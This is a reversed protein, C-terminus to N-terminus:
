LLPFEHLQPLKRDAASDLRQLSSLSITRQGNKQVAGCSEWAPGGPGNYITRFTEGTMQLVLLHVPESYLSIGKTGGTLKIQVPTGDAAQADHIENSAPFLTLGFAYAAIVEGISGVLHGDPTFKRDGFEKELEAVVGYLQRILTPIRAFGQEQTKGDARLIGGSPRQTADRQKTKTVLDALVDLFDPTYQEEVHNTNWLGSQWITVEPSRNGLWNPSPRDVSHKGFNSLLSICNREIYARQSTPGPVDGVELWLFPMKGIYRSVEQELASEARRVAEFASNGAGWTQHIEDPYQTV